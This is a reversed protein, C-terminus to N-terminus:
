KAAKFTYKYSINKFDLSFEFVPEYYVMKALVNGDALRLVPPYCGDDYTCAVKGEPLKYDVPSFPLSGNSFEAYAIKGNEYYITLTIGSFLEEFYPQIDIGTPNMPDFELVQRIVFTEVANDDHQDIYTGGHSVEVCGALLAAALFALTCKIINKM